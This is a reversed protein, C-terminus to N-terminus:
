FLIYLHMHWHFLIILTLQICEMIFKVSKFYAMVIRTNTGIRNCNKYLKFCAVLICIKDMNSLFAGM